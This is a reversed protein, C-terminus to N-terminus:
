KNKLEKCIKKLLELKNGQYDIEVCGCVDWHQRPYRKDRYIKVNFGMRELAKAIKDVRPNKIALNKPVKRGEKRSKEKDIYAPWIIM